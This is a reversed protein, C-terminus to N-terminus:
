HKWVYRKQIGGFSMDIGATLIIAAGFAVVAEGFLNLMYLVPTWEYMRRMNNAAVTLVVPHIMYFAYSTLSLPLWCKCELISQIIGGQNNFCVLSLLGLGVIFCPRQFAVWLSREWDGMEGGCDDQSDSITGCQIRTGATYSGYMPVLLLVLGVVVIFNRAQTSIRANPFNQEKEYWIIAVLLGIYYSPFRTWPMGYYDVSYNATMDGDNLNSSWGKTLASELSYMCSCAIFLVLLLGFARRHTTTSRAVDRRRMYVYFMTAPPLLIFLQIDAALYWSHGFCNGVGRNAWPVVNGVFLLAHWWGDGDCTMYADGANLTPTDFLMPSLLWGTLLTVTFIPWIRIARNLVKSSWVLIFKKHPHKQLENLLFYTALFASLFFFTDVSLSFTFSFIPSTLFQTAISDPSPSIRYANSSYQLEWLWSHGTLVWFASLARFCDLCAFPGARRKFSFISCLNTYFDFSSVYAPPKFEFVFDDEPAVFSESPRRSADEAAEAAETVNLLPEKTSTTPLGGCVSITGPESAFYEMPTRSLCSWVSGVLLALLIVVLFIAFVLAGGTLDYDPNKVHLTSTCTLPSSLLNPGFATLFTLLNTFYLYQTNTTACSFFGEITDSVEATQCQEFTSTTATTEILSAVQASLDEISSPKYDPICAAPICVAGIRAATCFTPDLHDNDSYDYAYYQMSVCMDFNGLQQGANAFFANAHSPAQMATTITSPDFAGSAAHYLGTYPSTTLATLAAICASSM